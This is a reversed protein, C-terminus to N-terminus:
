LLPNASRYISKHASDNSIQTLALGSWDDQFAEPSQFITAIVTRADRDYIATREVDAFALALDIGAEPTQERFSGKVAGHAETVGAPRRM